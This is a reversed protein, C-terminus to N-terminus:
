RLRGELWGIRFDQAMDFTPVYPKIDLLPTGDLVDLGEVHILSGRRELLRVVSLGIHNPRHPSRTAFVGRLRRDLYPKVLLKEGRSEQFYYLLIIHSFGDIARLGASYSRFVEVDGRAKSFRPQIPIDKLNKFPSHIIGIPKLLIM